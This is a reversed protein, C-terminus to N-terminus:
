ATSRRWAKSEEPTMELLAAAQRLHEDSVWGHAAQVIHLADAAAARKVPWHAAEALIEATQEQTLM